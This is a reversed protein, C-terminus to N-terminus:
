PGLGCARLAEPHHASLYTQRPTRQGSGEDFLPTGGMYMTGQPSGYADLQHATLWRDVCGEQSETWSGSAADAAVPLTIAKPVLAQPPSPPVSREQCGALLLLAFVALTRM